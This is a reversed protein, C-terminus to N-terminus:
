WTPALAPAAAKALLDAPRPRGQQRRACFAQCSLYCLLLLLHCYHLPSLPLPACCYRCCTGTSTGCASQTPTHASCVLVSAPSNQANLMRVAHLSPVKQGAAAATALVAGLAASVRIGIQQPQSTHTRTRATPIRTPTHTRPTPTCPCTRAHTHTRAHTPMPAHACAHTHTHRPPPSQSSLRKSKVSVELCWPLPAYQETCSWV